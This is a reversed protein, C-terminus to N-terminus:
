ILITTPLINYACSQETSSVFCHLNNSEKKFAFFKLPVRHSNVESLISKIKLQKGCFNKINETFANTKCFDQEAAFLIKISTKKKVFVNRKKDSKNPSCKSGLLIPRHSVLKQSQQPKFVQQFSCLFTYPKRLAFALDGEM